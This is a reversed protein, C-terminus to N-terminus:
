KFVKTLAVRSIQPDFAVGFPAKPVSSGEGVENDADINM